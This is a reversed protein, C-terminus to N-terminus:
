IVKLGNYENNAQEGEQLFSAPKHNSRETYTDWKLNQILEGIKEFDSLLKIATPPWELQYYYPPHMFTHPPFCVRPVQDPTRFIRMTHLKSLFETKEPTINKCFTICCFEWIMFDSKPKRNTLALKHVIAALSINTCLYAEYIDEIQANFM